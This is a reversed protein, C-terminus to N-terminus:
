RPLLAPSIDLKAAKSLFIVGAHIVIDDKVFEREIIALRGKGRSGANSLHFFITLLSKIVLIFYKLARVIDALGFREWDVVFIFERPERNM